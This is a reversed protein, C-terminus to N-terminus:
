FTWKNDINISYCNDVRDSTVCGINCRRVEWRHLPPPVKQKCKQFRSLIQIYSDMSRLETSMPQNVVAPANLYRTKTNCQMYTRIVKTSFIVKICAVFLKDLEPRLFKPCSEALDILAKLGADDDGLNPFCM